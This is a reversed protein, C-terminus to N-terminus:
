KMYGLGRLKDAQSPSLSKIRPFPKGLKGSPDLESFLVDRLHNTKITNKIPTREGTAKNLDYLFGEQRDFQHSYKWNEQNVVATKVSRDDAKEALSNTFESDNDSLGLFSRGSINTTDGNAFDLLTATLDISELKHKEQDLSRINSPNVTQPFKLLLPVNIIEETLHKLHGFYKKHDYLNEGHDSTMVFLSDKFVGLDKLAHTLRPFVFRDYYNVDSGYALRLINIDKRHKQHDLPDYTREIM